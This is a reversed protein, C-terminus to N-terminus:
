LFPPLDVPLALPGTLSNSFHCENLPACQRIVKSISCQGTETEFFLIAWQLLYVVAPMQGLLSIPATYVTVYLVRLVIWDIERGFEWRRPVDRNPVEDPRLYARVCSYRWSSFTRLRRWATPFEVMFWALELKISNAIISFLNCSAILM